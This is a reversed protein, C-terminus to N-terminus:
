IREWLECDAKTHKTVGRRKPLDRGFDIFSNPLIVEVTCEAQQDLIRRGSATKKWEAYKCTTCDKNAM